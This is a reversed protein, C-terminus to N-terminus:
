RRPSQPQWRQRGPAPRGCARALQRRTTIRRAAAARVQGHDGDTRRSGQVGARASQLSAEAVVVSSFAASGRWRGYRRPFPRLTRSFASAPCMALVPSNAAFPETESAVAARSFITTDGTRTRTEGDLDGAFVVSKGRQALRAFLCSSASPGERSRRSLPLHGAPVPKSSGLFVRHTEHASATAGPADRSLDSRYRASRHTRASARRGRRRQDSRRQGRPRPALRRRNSIAPAARHFLGLSGGRVGDSGTPAALSVGDASWITKDVPPRSHRTTLEHALGRHLARESRPIVQGPSHGLWGAPAHGLRPRRRPGRAHGSHPQHRRRQDHLNHREPRTTPSALPRERSSEADSRRNRAPRREVSTACSRASATRAVVATACGRAV